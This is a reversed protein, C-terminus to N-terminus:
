TIVVVIAYCVTGPTTRSYQLFQYDIDNERLVSSINSPAGFVAFDLAPFFADCEFETFIRTFYVIQCATLACILLCRNILMLRDSWALGMGPSQVAAQYIQGGGIVFVQDISKIQEPLALWELAGDLSSFVRINPASAEVEHQKDEGQRSIVINLRGALPRFKLPISEWTLSHLVM